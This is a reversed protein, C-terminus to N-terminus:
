LIIPAYRIKVVCKDSSFTIKNAGKCRVTPFTWLDTESFKNAGNETILGKVGDIIVPVGSKLNNIKIKDSGWGIEFSAIDQSPTIEVVCPADHTGEAEFEAVSKHEYTKEIENDTMYGDFSMSLIYRNKVRTKTTEETQLAGVFYGRYGDLKLTVKQECEAILSSIARLIQYREKGRFLITVTIRGVSSKTPYILPCPAGNVWEWETNMQPPQMDVTLQVANYKRIDIENIQM